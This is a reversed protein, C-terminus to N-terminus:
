NDERGALLFGLLGDFYTEEDDWMAMHSGDPCEHYRGNPLREAMMRMFEPDMTDHRAAIVLAPVTIEALEHTRDWDELTGSLGLESPGQMRVYIQQNIKAFSRQVPEPWDEVPVRLVHHVYHHELLLEEYRPNTIDGASELAKIEALAKQDMAPMLVHNAYDNYSPCSSMMNSIVLGKLHRQYHLAYEIALLGGWSHGLLYFNSADLGLTSRVQEVEDVFRELEWLDPEDPNDSAGSGLQDYFYFEIGHPELHQEFNEFYEHTAGPGGHLLLLKTHDSRGVRKVAVEFTGKPTRIPIRDM